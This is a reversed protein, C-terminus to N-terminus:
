WPKATRNFPYGSKVLILIGVAAFLRTISDETETYIEHNGLCDFVGSPARFARWNRNQRNVPAFFFRISYSAPLEDLGALPEGAGNLNGLFVLLSVHCQM